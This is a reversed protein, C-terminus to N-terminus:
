RGNTTLHITYAQDHHNHDGMGIVMGHTWLRSDEQQVAVASGIPLPAFVPSADNGNRHQRDLLRSHHEDDCDQGIPRHGIVPMIGGVQRNFM